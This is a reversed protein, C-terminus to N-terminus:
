TQPTFEAGSALYNGTGVALSRNVWGENNAVDFQLALFQGVHPSYAFGLYGTTEAAPLYLQHWHVGGNTSFRIEPSGDVTALYLSGVCILSSTSLEGFDAGPSMDSVNTWAVGDPSTYTDTEAVIVFLDREEDYALGNVVEAIVASAVWNIGDSSTWVDANTGNGVIVSLGSRNTAIQKAQTSTVVPLNVAVFVMTAAPAYYMTPHIGATLDFGAALWLQNSPDYVGDLTSVNGAVGAM